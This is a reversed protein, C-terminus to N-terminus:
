LVVHEVFCSPGVSTPDVVVNFWQLQGKDKSSYAFGPIAVEFDFMCASPYPVCDARLYELNIVKRDPIVGEPLNIQDIYTRAYTKVRVMVSAPLSVIRITGDNVSKLIFLVMELQTSKM